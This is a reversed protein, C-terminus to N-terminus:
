AATRTDAVGTGSPRLAKFEMNNDVNVATQAAVIEVNRTLAVLVGVAIMAMCLGSGGYSIFPLSIGKPPISATVVAMNFAAQLGIVAIIGFACLASFRDPLNRVLRIGECVFAVFLLLIFLTGCLGLEQGAVALIFDTHAEPLYYLKSVGDGLGMGSLGGSGLAVKSMWIQYGKDDKSGSHWAEVRSLIYDFKTIGIIIAPPIAVIALSAVQWFRAGGVILMAVLVGGILAATGFDPEKMILGCCAGVLAAGPLFGRWFPLGGHTFRALFSAMVIVMGFKAFESPQMNGGWRLWRSAGNVTTGIGPILVAILLLFVVIGIPKSFWRLHAPRLYSVLYMGACGFLLWTMQKQLYAFDVGAASNGAKVCSASYILVLGTCVLTMMIILLRNRSTLLRMRVERVGIAENM